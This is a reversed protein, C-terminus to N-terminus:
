FEWGAEGRSIESLDRFPVSYVLLPVGGRGLVRGKKENRWSRKDPIEECSIYSILLIWSCGDGEM